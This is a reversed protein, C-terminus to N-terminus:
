LWRVEPYSVGGALGPKVKLCYNVEKLYDGFPLAAGRNPSSDHIAMLVAMFSPHTVRM